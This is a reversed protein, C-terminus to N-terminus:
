NDILELTAETIAENHLIIIENRGWSTKSQLKSEFIEQIRKILKKNM